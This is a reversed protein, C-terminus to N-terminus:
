HENLTWVTYGIKIWLHFLSVLIAVNYDMALSKLMRGLSVM